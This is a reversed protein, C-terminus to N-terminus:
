DGPDERNSMLYYNANYCAETNIAIVNVNDYKTGDTTSFKATYFGMKEFDALSEEGLWKQWYNALFPLIPDTVDFNQSNIVTGFDHNGELPYTRWESLNESMYNFLFTQYKEVYEQSYNWQDHPVVDGTWFLTDPALQNVKETMKDLVAVPVDCFAVSGYVGAGQSPDEAM